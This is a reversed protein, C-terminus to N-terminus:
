LLAEVVLLLLLADDLELLELESAVEVAELVDELELLEDLLAEHLADAELVLLEEKAVEVEEADHEVEVEVEVEVFGIIKVSKLTELIASTEVTLVLVSNM